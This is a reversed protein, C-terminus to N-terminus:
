EDKPIDETHDSGQGDGVGLTDKGTDTTDNYDTPMEENNDPKTSKNPRNCAQITWFLVSLILIIKLKKM